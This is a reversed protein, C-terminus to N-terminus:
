EWFNFYVSVFIFRQHSFVHWKSIVHWKIIRAICQLYRKYSGLKSRGIRCYWITQWLTLFVMCELSMFMYKCCLICLRLIRSQNICRTLLSEFLHKQIFMKKYYRSVSQPDWIWNRGVFICNAKVCWTKWTKQNRM